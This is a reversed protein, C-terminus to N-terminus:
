GEEAVAEDRARSRGRLLDTRVWPTKLCEVVFFERGKNQEALKLDMELGAVEIPTLLIEGSLYRRITATAAEAAREGRKLGDTLTVLLKEAAELSDFERHPAGLLVGEQDSVAFVEHQMYRM